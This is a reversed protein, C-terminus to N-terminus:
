PLPREWHSLSDKTNSNEDDPSIMLQLVGLPSKPQVFPTMSTVTEDFVWNQDPPSYAQFFHCFIWKLNTKEPNIEEVTNIIKEFRIKEVEPGDFTEMGIHVVSTDKSNFQQMAKHLQNKINRAKAWIAEKADCTWYVGFANSIDSIYLNNIEGDGVRFFSGHLGCTFGKNDVPNKGILKHLMPTNHKVFNNRLHEKFFLIDVFTLGIDVQNNSVIKGSNGLNLKKELLDRLFTDPLTKLEVHFDITLLINLELLTEIIYSVMKQRKATEKYTYDATKSQRKCEINWICGDKEAIIDPTKEGNKEALFSVQYGNKAWLLATLIEFLLADAESKRKRLMEKVRGEIGGINKLSELDKGLRKFIPVIRAGQFYEYKHPENILVDVLYLYWGIVDDKIVILTGNTLSDTFPKNVKIGMMIKREILAKRKLWDGESIFSMFWKWSKIVDQDDYKPFNLSEIPIRQM